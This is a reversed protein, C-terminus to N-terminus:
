RTFTQYRHVDLPWSHVLFPLGAVPEGDASRAVARRRPRRGARRDLARGRTTAAGTARASGVFGDAGVVELPASGRRRWNYPSASTAGTRRPQRERGGATASARRFSRSRPGVAATADACSSDSSDRARSSAPRDTQPFSTTSCPWDMRHQPGPAPCNWHFSRLLPDRSAVTAQGTARSGRATVLDVRLGRGGRRLELCRNRDLLFRRAPRSRASTRRYRACM